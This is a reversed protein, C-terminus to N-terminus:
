QILLPCSLIVRCYLLSFLCVFVRRWYVQISDNSRRLEQYYEDLLRPFAEEDFEISSSLYYALEVAAYGVGCM